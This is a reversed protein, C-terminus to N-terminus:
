SMIEEPAASRYPIDQIRVITGQGATSEIHLSGGLQAARERLGVLGFGEEQPSEAAFGRGDDEIELSLTEKGVRLRVNVSTAGSHKVVNNLAEQMIRYLGLEVASPLRYFDVMAARGDSQMPSAHGHEDTVILRSRIGARREVTELRHYLAGLLGEEELETPRLEYILLRVERLAQQVLDDLEIIHEKDAELRGSEIQRRWAGALVSMSYLSQTVVDHLERALRAREELAAQEERLQQAQEHLQANAIAIAAWNAAAVLTPLHDATLQEPTSHAAELVGIPRGGQMLPAALLSQSHFESVSEVQRYIALGPINSGETNIWVAEGTLMVHGAVGSNAPMVTGKLQAAGSGCVAVFKLGNAGEPMLIAVGQPHLLDTVELMVRELVDELKLSSTVAQGLKNLALITQRQLTHPLEIVDKM